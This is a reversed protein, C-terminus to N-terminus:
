FSSTITDFHAPCHCLREAAVQWKDLTANSQGCEPNFTIVEKDRENLLNQSTFRCVDALARYELGM